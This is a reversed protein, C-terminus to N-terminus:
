RHALKIELTLIGGDSMAAVPVLGYNMGDPSSEMILDKAGGSVAKFGQRPSVVAYTSQMSDEVVLDKAGKAKLSKAGGLSAMMTAGAQEPPLPYSPVSVSSSGADAMPAPPVWGSNAPPPSYGAPPPATYAVPPPAYTPAPAPPPAAAAQNMARGAGPAAFPSPENSLMILIQETGPNGDFRLNTNPPIETLRRADVYDSFLVHMRGSSGINAVTLYGPRNTRALIKVREGSRFIRNKSVARMQGDDGISLIQYSIGVYRAPAAVPAAATVPAAPRAAGASMGITGGEGSDFIAKAGTPAALLSVSSGLLVGACLLKWPLRHGVPSMYIEV